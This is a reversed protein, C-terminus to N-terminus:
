NSVWTLSFTSTGLTGPQIEIKGKPPRKGNTTQVAESLGTASTYTGLAAGNIDVNTFTFTSFTPIKKTSGPVSGVFAYEPTSGTGTITRTFGTTDDTFTGSTAGSSQDASVTVLDNANVKTKLTTGSGNVEIYGKYVAKGKKCTESVIPSSSGGTTNEVLVGFGISEKVNTCTLSPVHFQATTSAPPVSTSYVQYGANGPYYTVHVSAFAPAAPAIVLVSLALGTGIASLLRVRMTVSNM